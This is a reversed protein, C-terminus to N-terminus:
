AGGHQRDRAPTTMEGTPPLSVALVTAGGVVHEGIKVNVQAAPDFYVDTRSGFKIMGVREGRAVKDGVKKHFVIRRALLGAIQKFVLTQGDDGQVTVSNQENVTACEESLANRFCGKKYEINTITGALPSRNVHVDFVSLFISIRTHPRGEHDVKSISTVKGDAPSVIAGSAVPIAREPDRFFWLFFLGLLIPPIMFWPGALWGVLAAVAAMGLAYYIGDRVM